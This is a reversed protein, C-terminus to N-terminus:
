EDFVVLAINMPSVGFESSAFLMAVIPVVNKATLHIARNTSKLDLSKNVSKM